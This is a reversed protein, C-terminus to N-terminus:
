NEGAVLLVALDSGKGVQNLYKAEKAWDKIQRRSFFKEPQAGRGQEDILPVGRLYLESAWFQFASSDFWQKAAKLGAKRILCNLSAQSHLFLHRPADLQVANVRYREWASCDITPIRVLIRGGPTLRQRCAQLMHLQGEVHELVHHLMILDFCGEVAEISQRKSWLGPLIEKEEKLFPDIGLLSKTGLRYLSSLLQGGGCGVDLVKMEMKFPLQGLSILAPQMPPFFAKLIRGIGGSGTVVTLDRKRALWAKLGNQPVAGLNYSYYHVPYYRSLDKPLESIQLCGCGSCQFYDFEDGFGFMKERLRYFQHNSENGCIQCKKIM